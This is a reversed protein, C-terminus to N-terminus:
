MVTLLSTNTNTGPSGKPSGAIAHSIVEALGNRRVAWNMIAYFTGVSYQSLFNFRGGIRLSRTAESRLVILSELNLEDTELM